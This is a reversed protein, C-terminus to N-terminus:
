EVQVWYSKGPHKRWRFKEYHWNNKVQEASRSLHEQKEEDLGAWSKAVNKAFEALDESVNIGKNEYDRAATAVFM